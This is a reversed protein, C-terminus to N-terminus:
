NTSSQKIIRIRNLSSTIKFIYDDAKANYKKDISKASISIFNNSPNSILLPLELAVTEGIFLDRYARNIPKKTPSSTIIAGYISIDFESLLLNRNPTLYLMTKIEPSRLSHSKVRFDFDVFPPQNAFVLQTFLFLTLFISKTM